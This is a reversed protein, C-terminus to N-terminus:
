GKSGDAAPNAGALHFKAQNAFGVGPLLLGDTKAERRDPSFHRHISLAWRNKEVRM